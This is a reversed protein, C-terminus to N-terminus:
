TILTVAAYTIPLSELGLVDRAKVTSKEAAVLTSEPASDLGAANNATRVDNTYTVLREFIIIKVSKLDLLGSNTFEVPTTLLNNPDLPAELSVAPRAQLGLGALALSVVGILLGLITLYFAWPEMGLITRRKEASEKHLRRVRRERIEKPPKGRMSNPNGHRRQWNISGGEEM